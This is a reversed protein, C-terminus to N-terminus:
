LLIQYIYIENSKARLNCRAIFFFFSTPIYYLKLDYM